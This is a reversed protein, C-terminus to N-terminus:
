KFMYGYIINAAAERTLKLKPNINNNEDKEIIGLGYAINMYGKLSPEIEKSDKFIKAFIEPLEAIKTLNKGRIVYKIAEEKEVEREATKEEEKIIGTRILEEYIKDIDKETETRYSSMGKFLLYAFEKQKIKEKPLFKDTNFGVGYQALTKIEEKYASNEIDTYQIINNAKYPLGSYDLIQGSQADIISPINNNVAYVLRIEKNNMDPNEYNYITVYKLEYGIDDFLVEYASELSIIDGKPPLEGKFWDLGYSLVQKNVADIGINISDSEVYVDDIKRIFRFYYNQQGEKLNEDVLEVLNVREPQIKKIYEKAMVLAEDRSIIANDNPAYPIYKYYNILEGTKANFSIDASLTENDLRKNFYMSWIFEGPNKYDNYLNKGQLIFDSDLSLLERAKVELAEPDMIGVLKDIEAREEPTISMDSVAKEAVADMGGSYYSIDLPEKTFADIAKSLYLPSYTLFYKTDKNTILDKFVRFSSKYVLELGIKEKYATKGTELSIVGSPNPFVALMDWNSYYNNVEGTYKNVNVNISNDPYPINNMVRIFNFSYDVDFLRIPQNNDVYKINEANTSNIKKIFGKAIELAESQSYNPLKSEGETYNPSYKSFSIVNGESDTSISINDLKGKSDSWNLYFYVRNESSSVSSEFTDYNDSIGFLSKVKFIVAEMDKDFATQGFVNM